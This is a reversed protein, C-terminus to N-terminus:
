YWKINMRTLLTTTWMCSYYVCTSRRERLQVAGFWAAYLPLQEPCKCFFGPLHTKILADCQIVSAV